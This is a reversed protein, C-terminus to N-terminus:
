PYKYSIKTQRKQQQAYQIYMTQEISTKVNTKRNVCTNRVVIKMFKEYAIQLQYVFFNFGTPM